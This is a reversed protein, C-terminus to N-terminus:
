SLPLALQRGDAYLPAAFSPPLPLTTLGKLLRQEANDYHTASIASPGGPGRDAAHGTVLEGLHPVGVTAGHDNCWTTCTKRLHRVQYAPAIGDLGAKPRVGAAQLISKWAGYFAENSLPFPFVPEEPGADDPRIAELHAHYAPHLPLVLPDPKIRQQKQPTYVLWGLRWEAKGEPAPTESQPRVDGWTLARMRTEYRVQEQTRFGYVCWGVLLAEWYAAPRCPLDRPWHAVRCARKLAEAEAYSLYLKRSARQTPLPELKYAHPLLAHRVAAELVATVTGLHKNITRPSLPGTEPPASELWGRFALLEPRTIQPLVPHAIRYKWGRGTSKAAAFALEWFKDWRALHTEYERVTEVSRRSLEPRKYREYCDRLSVTEPPEAEAFDLCLAASAPQGSPSSSQPVEPAWLRLTPPDDPFPLRAHDMAPEVRLSSRPLAGSISFQFHLLATSDSM